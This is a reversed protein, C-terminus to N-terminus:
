DYKEPYHEVRLTDGETNLHAWIGIKKPYKNRQVPTYIVEYTAPDIEAISDSYISDVQQYKGILLPNGLQDFKVWKGDLVENAIHSLVMSVELEDPHCNLQTEFIRHDEVTIYNEHGIRLYCMVTIQRCTDSYCTTTPKHRSINSLPNTVIQGKYKCETEDGKRLYTITDIASAIKLLHNVAKVEKIYHWENLDGKAALSDVFEDTLDQGSLLGGLLFCGLFFLYKRM